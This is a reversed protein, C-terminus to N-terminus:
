YFFKIKEFMLKNDNIERYIINSINLFTNVLVLHAISSSINTRKKKFNKFGLQKLKKIM